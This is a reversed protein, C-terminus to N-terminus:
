CMVLPQEVHMAFIYAVQQTLLSSSLKPVNDQGDDTEGYSEGAQLITPIIDQLFDRKMFFNIFGPGAIEVKEISAETLNIHGKIDEAIERPAKKAIRALQM